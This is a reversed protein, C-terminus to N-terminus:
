WAAASVRWAAWALGGFLCAEAARQVLGRVSTPPLVSLAIVSGVVVCAAIRFPQGLSESLTMLSFAGGAYQVAGAVNHLLQRTSGWLPSGEDCPFVAAGLYGVALCLALTATDPSAPHVLYAVLLMILGIPLFLGLAVWRQQPAGVEGLESISHKVHSYGRKRPALAVLSAALYLSALVTLLAAFM